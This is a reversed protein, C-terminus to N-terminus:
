KYISGKKGYGKYMRTTTKLCLIRLAVSGNWVVIKFFYRFYCSINLKNKLTKKANSKQRNQATTRNKKMGAVFTWHGGVEFSKRDGIKDM